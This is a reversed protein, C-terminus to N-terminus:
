GFADIERLQQLPDCGGDLEHWLEQSPMNDIDRLLDDLNSSAAVEEQKVLTKPYSYNTIVAPRKMVIPQFNAPFFEDEVAPLEVISKTAGTTIVGPKSTLCDYSSVSSPAPQCEKVVSGSGCAAETATLEKQAVEEFGHRRAIDLLVRNQRTLREVSNTLSSVEM